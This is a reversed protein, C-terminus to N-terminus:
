GGQMAFTISVFKIFIIIGVVLAGMSIWNLVDTVINWVDSMKDKAKIELDISLLSTRHSILILILSASFLVWSLYLLTFDKVKSLDVIKEIFGVTLTLAGSSLYVILKDYQEGAYRRTEYLITLYEKETLPSKKNMKRRIVFLDAARM